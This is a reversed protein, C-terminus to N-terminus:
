VAFRMAADHFRAARSEVSERQKEQHRGNPEGKTVSGDGQKKKKEPIAKAEEEAIKIFAKLIRKQVPDKLKAQIIQAEKASLQELLVGARYTQAPDNKQLHKQYAIFEKSERIQEHADKLIQTVFHTKMQKVYKHDDESILAGIEKAQPAWKGRLHAGYEQWSQHIREKEKEQKIADLESRVQQLESQVQQKHAFDSKRRNKEEDSLKGEIQEKLVDFDLVGLEVADAIVGAYELGQGETLSLGPLLFKQVAWDQVRPDSMATRFIRAEYNVAHPIQEMVEVFAEFGEESDDMAARGFELVVKAPEAGGLETVVDKIPEYGQLQAVYEGNIRHVRKIEDRLTKPASIFDKDVTKPDIKKQGEKDEAVDEDSEDDTESAKKKSSDTKKTLSAVVSDEEDDSDTEDEVDTESDDDADTDTEDDEDKGAADTMAKLFSESRAAAKDPDIRSLRTAGPVSVGVDKGTEGGPKDAAPAVDITEVAM